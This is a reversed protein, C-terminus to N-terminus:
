NGSEAETPDAAKSKKRTLGCLAQREMNRSNEVQWISNCM